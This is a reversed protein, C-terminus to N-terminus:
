RGSGGDASAPTTFTAAASRPEFGFEAFVGELEKYIVQESLGFQELSYSHGSSFSRQSALAEGLRERFSPSMDIGLRRYLAEVTRRPEAVLDDYRVIIFRDAPVFKRCDLAYRYHDIALRALARAEPSDAGIEPSHTIWKSHFMDLFSPIADFPHRLLYVFRADPFREFMSRLRPAFLANKNLFAREGGSAFLHRRLADEYYDMFRRREDAPLDDFRTLGPLDDLYPFLLVAAPTMLSLAFLSEDEEAKDIGMEHIGVWASFVKRNVIDVLRRLPRGPLHEDFRGLAGVSRRLSVACFISQYLKMSAFREEDLSMLRHLLTTGSRANGFIFVPEEIKQQAIGPWLLDDIWRSLDLLGRITFFGVAYGLWIWARRPSLHHRAVGIIERVAARNLYM